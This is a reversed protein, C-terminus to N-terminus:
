RKRIVKKDISAELKDNTVAIKYHFVLDNTQSIKDLLENEPPLKIKSFPKIEIEKEISFKGAVKTEIKTKVTNPSFNELYAVLCDDNDGLEQCSNEFALALQEQYAKKESNIGQQYFTAFLAGAILLILSITTSETSKIKM